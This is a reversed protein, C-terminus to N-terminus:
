YYKRIESIIKKNLITSLDGIRKTTPNLYPERLARSLIKRM